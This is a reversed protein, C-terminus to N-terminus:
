SCVLSLVAWVWLTPAWLCVVRPDSSWVCDPPFHGFSHYFFVEWSYLGSDAVLCVSYEHLLHYFTLFVWKSLSSSPLRPWLLGVASSLWGPQIVVDSPSM